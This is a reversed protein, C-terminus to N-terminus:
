DESGPAPIDAKIVHPPIGKLFFNVIMGIISIILFVLFVQVLASNLANQLTSILQEFLTDGQAGLGEFMAQLGTRADPNVLVQPNDVIASLQDPNIVEKVGSPLDAMFRSAFRNNLISGVIALGFVGGLPRLLNVMSTAAGMISYPVTNQVAITHIPMIMGNGIGVLIINFIAVGFSTEATMRTLLFFGVVTLIFGITAQLRYHGGARSLLQGSIFSGVAASLMMPTMFSGSQTASAGLVGQFYLPIFNVVPFFAAGMCFGVISCVVVVRNKFLQLPVIAEVARKEVIIFLIFSLASFAFL